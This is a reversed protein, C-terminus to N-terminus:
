RVLTLLALNMATQLETDTIGVGTSDATAESAITSSAILASMARELMEDPNDIARRAAAIRGSDTSSELTTRAATLMAIRARGKFTTNALLAVQDVFAM